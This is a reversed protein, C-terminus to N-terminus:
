TPEDTGDETARFPSSRDVLSLMEGAAGVTLPHPTFGPRPSIYAAMDRVLELQAQTAQALLTIVVNELAIVRIQLQVLEANGLPPASALAAEVSVDVPRGGPGAGGENNWRQLARQRQKASEMSDAKTTAM